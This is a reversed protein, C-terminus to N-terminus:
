ESVRFLSASFTHGALGMFILILPVDSLKEIGEKQEVPPLTITAAAGVIAQMGYHGHNYVYDNQFSGKPLASFVETNWHVLTKGSSTKVCAEM